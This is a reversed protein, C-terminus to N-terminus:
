ILMSPPLIQINGYNEKLTVVRIGNNTTINAMHKMNWSLVYDCQSVIAAAIHISDLRSKSPLVGQNIIINALTYVEETLEIESYKIEAIHNVLLKRKPENCKLLEDFVAESLCINYKGQKVKCWFFKTYEFETSKEPQELHSIVSTDLYIKLKRM